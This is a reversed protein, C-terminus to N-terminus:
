GDATFANVLSIELLYAQMPRLKAKLQNILEEDAATEAQVLQRILPAMESILNARAIKKLSYASHRDIQRTKIKPIPYSEVLKDPLSQKYM